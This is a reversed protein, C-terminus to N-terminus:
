AESEELMGAGLLLLLRVDITVGAARREAVLQPVWALPVKHVVIDESDTGGGDGVRTLGSAKLLSFTESLMGPSSSYEGLDEWRAAAFGTEEELEREAAAFPDEDEGGDDDGILGAPLELCTKGLPVRFQEVLVVEGADLALIVAARIGGPRGAYEWRGRRKAQVYKGNWVIEEPKDADPPRKSV